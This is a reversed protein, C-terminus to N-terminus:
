RTGGMANCKITIDQSTNVLTVETKGPTNNQEENVTYAIKATKGPIGTSTLDLNEKYFFTKLSSCYEFARNGISTVSYPITVSTLSTCDFFALDGISKVSDPITVSTLSTCNSFAWNGISTVSDPITVSTLKTCNYFTGIGISTVSDPITVSTLSTCNYFAGIGISTVSDPITILTLSTCGKFTSDGISTVSDPITVSTLSSCDSFASNGISAVGPEITVSKIGDKNGGWPTGSAYKYDEMAGSGSITLTGSVDDFVWTVNSENGEAGCKGSTPLEAAWAVHPFTLNLVLLALLLCLIKKKM